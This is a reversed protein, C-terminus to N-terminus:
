PRVASELVLGRVNIAIYESVGLGQLLRVKEHFVEARIQPHRVFGKNNNAREESSWRGGSLTYVQRYDGLKLYSCRESIAANSAAKM